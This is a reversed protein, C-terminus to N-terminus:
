TADLQASQTNLDVNGRIGMSELQQDHRTIAFSNINAFVGAGCLYDAARERFIKMLNTTSCDELGGREGPLNELHRFITRKIKAARAFQKCTFISTYFTEPEMHWFILQLIEAPLDLLHHGTREHVSPQPSQTPSGSM